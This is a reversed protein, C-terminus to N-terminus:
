RLKRVRKAFERDIARNRIDLYNAWVQANISQLRQLKPRIRVRRIAVFVTISPNSRLVLRAPVRANRSRGKIPLFLLRGGRFTSPTLARPKNRAGGGLRRGEATPVWLYKANRPTITAGTQFLGFINVLGRDTKRTAGFRIEGAPQLANGNRPYANGKVAKSIPTGLRRSVYSKHRNLAQTTKRRMTATSAVAFAERFAKEYDRLSGDIALKIALTM